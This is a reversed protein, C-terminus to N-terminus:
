TTAVIAAFVLGGWPKNADPPRVATHYPTPWCSVLCLFWTLATISLLFWRAGNRFM